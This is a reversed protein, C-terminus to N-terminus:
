LYLCLCLRVIIAHHVLAMVMVVTTRSDLECGQGFSVHSQVIAATVTSNSTGSTISPICVRLTSWRRRGRGTYSPRMIEVWDVGGGGGGGRRPPNMLTMM